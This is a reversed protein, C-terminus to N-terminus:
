LYLLTDYDWSGFLKEAIAAGMAAATSGFFLVLTRRLVVLACRGISDFTLQITRSFCENADLTQRLEQSPCEDAGTLLTFSLSREL